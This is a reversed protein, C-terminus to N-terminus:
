CAHMYATYLKMIMEVETRKEIAKVSKEGGTSVNMLIEGEFVRGQVVTVMRSSLTGSDVSLSRTDTINSLKSSKPNSATVFMGISVVITM